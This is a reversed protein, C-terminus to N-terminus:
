CLTSRWLLVKEELEPRDKKVRLEVLSFLSRGESLAFPGKPNVVTNVGTIGAIASTTNTCPKPPPDRLVHVFDCSEDRKQGWSHSECSSPNLSTRMCLKPYSELQSFSLVRLMWSKAFDSRPEM